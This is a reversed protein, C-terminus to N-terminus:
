APAAALFKAAIPAAVRGGVGGGEVFVCFALTGRFGIFWAHTTPPNATGFEATGTKGMVPAGPVNAATGTGSTVVDRMMSALASVTAAPLPTGAASPAAAGSILTPPHWTGSQVAAAVTAMHLPSATVRAQGIAAAAREAADTPTPYQGGAVPLPLDYRAGFGFATAADGVAAPPLKSAMTVFATNCSIAFARRLSLGGATEGEFNRFAKGGITATPPCTAQTDPTSGAGLLAATTIVKFTSGPPYRGALARDFEQDLPRSVVARIAGTPGDVAVIAAPQAVGALAQEAAAQIATDITIEVPQPVVGDIHLLTQVAQGRTDVIRVTITPKGALQREGVAEMGSLGVVDGVAYPAGLQKLRDATIEGVRGILHFAFNDSPSQRTSTKQFVIGPVPELAARLQAFRDAKVTVVPLFFDDRARPKALIATVTAPDIGLQSKFAAQVAGVDNMHDPEIGVSVADQMSALPGGKDDVIPARTPWVRSRSFRLGAHLDPHLSETTWVVKWAHQIRALHLRGRYRLEGVGSLQLRGDFPADVGGRVRKMALPEFTASSVVLNQKMGGVPGTLTGAPQDTRKAMAAPDFAEFAKLYATVEAKPLSPKRVVFLAVAAGALALGIVGLTIYLGIPPRHESM